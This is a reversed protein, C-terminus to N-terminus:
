RLGGRRRQRPPGVRKHWFQRALLRLQEAQRSVAAAARNSDHSHVAQQESAQHIEEISRHIAESAVGQQEVAGAIQGNLATIASVQAHIEALVQSAEAAQRESLGVEQSGAQMAQVAGEIEGQLGGLIDQIQRTSDQTRIALNRVEDAVVAFGRGAEGARAAEIAANLALLNTQEAIAEIVGIVSNIRSSSAQLNQVATAARQMERALSAIRRGTAQVQEEGGRAAHDAAGATTACHQAGRAVERVSAAMEEIAQAIQRTEQQQRQSSADSHAVASQLREAQEALQRAAEALRGVIAGAEMTQMRLAFAIEGFEDSRGCYVWQGVPNVAVKRAEDLLQRLPALVQWLGAAFVGLGAAGSALAIFPDADLALIALGLAAGVALGCLGLLRAFLGPRWRLPKPTRGANLAAYVADASEVWAPEPRTRVSQYEVVEGDEVIPTVYASVWYHDGNKCRNKVMGMWSRGSELANWLGAFAAPPMDPHRVINHSQGLLETESFGSVKVFEPNVSTIIGKLDTTSLINISEALEVARGSVPLNIKM